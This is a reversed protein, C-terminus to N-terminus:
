EVRGSDLLSNRGRLLLPRWGAGGLGAVEEELLPDTQSGIRRISPHPRTSHTTPLSARLERILDQKQQQYRREEKAAGIQNKRSACVNSAGHPPRRPVGSAVRALAPCASSIQQKTALQDFIEFIRANPQAFSFWLVTFSWAVFTWRDINIHYSQFFHLELHRGTRSWQRCSGDAAEFGVHDWLVYLERGLSTHKNRSQSQGHPGVNPTTSEWSNEGRKQRQL